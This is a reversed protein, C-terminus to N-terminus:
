CVGFKEAQSAKLMTLMRGECPVIVHSCAEGVTRCLLGVDGNHDVKEWSGVAVAGTAAAVQKGDGGDGGEVSEGEEGHAGTGTSQLARLARMLRRNRAPSFHFALLPLRVAIRTPPYSPHDVM